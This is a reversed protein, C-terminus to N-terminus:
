ELAQFQQPTRSVTRPSLIQSSRNRYLSLL